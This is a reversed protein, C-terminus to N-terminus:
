PVDLVVQFPFPRRPVRRRSGTPTWQVELLGWARYAGPGVADPVRYTAALTGDPFLDRRVLNEVRREVGGGAGERTWRVADHAESELLVRGGPPEIWLVSPLAGRGELELPGDFAPKAGATSPTLAVEFSRDGTAAVSASLPVADHHVETVRTAYKTGDLDVYPGAGAGREDSLREWYAEPVADVRRESAGPQLTPVRRTSAAAREVFRRLDGPLDAAPVVPRGWLEEVTLPRAELRYPPGPDVRETVIRGAGASDRVYDYADLLAEVADPVVSVRYEDRPVEVSYAGLTRVFARAPEELGDLDDPGVTRDPDPSEVDPDLRAVFVPVTPDFVHPTGDVGVYPLFRYGGGHRRFRDVGELLATSVADTEYGGDVAAELAGRLPEDVASLPVVQDPDIAREEPTQAFARVLYRATELRVDLGPAAPSATTDPDDAAAPSPATPDPPAPAGGCGALGGLAGAAAALYQRRRM